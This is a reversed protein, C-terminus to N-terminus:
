ETGLNGTVTNVSAATQAGIISSRAGHTEIITTLRTGVKGSGKDKRGIGLIITDMGTDEETTEMGNEKIDGEVKEKAVKEGKGLARSPQWTKETGGGM